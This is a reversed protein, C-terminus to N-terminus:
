GRRSRRAFRRWTALLHWRDYRRPDGGWVAGLHYPNGFVDKPDSEGAVASLREDIFQQADDQDNSM